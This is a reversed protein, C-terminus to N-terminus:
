QLQSRTETEPNHSFHTHYKETFEDMTLQALPVWPLEPMILDKSTHLEDLVYELDEKNKKIKRLRKEELYDKRYVDWSAKVIEIVDGGLDTQLGPEFAKEGEQCGHDHSHSGEPRFLYTGFHARRDIIKHWEKM